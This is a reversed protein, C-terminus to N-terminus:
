RQALETHTVSVRLVFPPTQLTSPSQTDPWQVPPTQQPTAHPAPCAHTGPV